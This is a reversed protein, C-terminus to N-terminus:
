PCSQTNNNSLSPPTTFPPSAPCPKNTEAPRPLLARRLLCFPPRRPPRRGEMGGGKGGRCGEMGGGELAGSLMEDDADDESRALAEPKRLDHVSLTGDGSVVLLAGPGGSGGGGGAGGGGGHRLALGSIFDSHKSYSYVPKPGDGSGSAGGSSGGGAGGGLPCRLDWIRLGGDEDGAAVLVAPAGGGGGGAGGGSGSAGGCADLCLLRSIGAAHAKPLRASLKGTELDILQVSGSEYGCALAAGDGTFRLARCSAAGKGRRHLAQEARLKSGGTTAAAAAAAAAAKKKKKSGGGGGSDDDDGSGGGGDAADSYRHVFM